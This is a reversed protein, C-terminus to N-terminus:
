AFISVGDTISQKQIIEQSNIPFHDNGFSLKQNLMREHHGNQGPNNFQSKAQDQYFTREQDPQYQLTVEIKDIKLGQNQLATKLDDMHANMAQHVKENEVTMMIQVTENRVAIQMDLHGMIEPKLTLRVQGNDKNQALSFGDQIQDVVTQYISKTTEMTTKGLHFDAAKTVMSIIESQLPEKERGAALIIEEHGTHNTKASVDGSAKIWKGQDDHDTATIAKEIKHANIDKDGAISQTKDTRKMVGAFVDKKESRGTNETQGIPEKQHGDKVTLKELPNIKIRAEVNKQRFDERGAEKQYIDAHIKKRDVTAEKIFEKQYLSQQVFIPQDSHARAGPKLESVTAQDVANLIGKVDEVSFGKKELIAVAAQRFSPSTPEVHSPSKGSTDQKIGSAKTEIVQDLEKTIGAIVETPIGKGELASVLQKKMEPVSKARLLHDTPRFKATTEEVAKLIGKIEAASLGKDELAMVLQNKMEPITNLNVATLPQNKEALSDLIDKQQKGLKNATANLLVDNPRVLGRKGEKHIALLSEAGKEDAGVATARAIMKEIFAGIFVPTAITEKQEDTSNKNAPNTKVQGPSAIGEDKKPKGNGQGPDHKKILFIKGMQNRDSETALNEEAHNQNQYEAMTMQMMGLFDNTSGSKSSGTSMRGLLDANAGTPKQDKMVTIIEIAPM